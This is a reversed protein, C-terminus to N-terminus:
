AVATYQAILCRSTLVCDTMVIIPESMESDTVTM